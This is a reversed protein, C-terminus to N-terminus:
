ILHSHPFLGKPGAPHRQDIIRRPEATLLDFVGKNSNNTIRLCDGGQQGAFLFSLWELTFCQFDADRHTTMFWRTMNWSWNVLSKLGSFHVKSNWQLRSWTGTQSLWPIRCFMLTTGCCVGCVSVLGWRRVFCNMYVFVGKTWSM